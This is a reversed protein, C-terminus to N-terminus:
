SIMNKPKRDYIKEENMWERFTRTGKLVKKELAYDTILPDVELRDITIKPDFHRLVHAVAICRHKKKFDKPMRGKPTYKVFLDLPPKSYKELLPQIHKAREEDNQFLEKLTSEIVSTRAVTAFDYLQQARGELSHVARQESHLKREDNKNEQPVWDEITGPKMGILPIPKSLNYKARLFSWEGYVNIKDPFTMPLYLPNIHKRNHIAKSLEEYIEIQSHKAWDVVKEPDLINKSIENMINKQSKLVGSKIAESLKSKINRIYHIKRHPIPFNLMVWEHFDQKGSLAEIKNKARLAKNIDLQFDTFALFTGLSNEDITSIGSILCVAQHEIWFPSFGYLEYCPNEVDELKPSVNPVFEEITKLISDVTFETKKKM